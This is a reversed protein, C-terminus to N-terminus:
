EGAGSRSRGFSLVSLQEVAVGGTHQGLRAESSQSAYVPAKGRAEEYDMRQLRLLAGALVSQAEARRCVSQTAAPEETQAQTVFRPGHGAEGSADGDLSDWSRTRDFAPSHTGADCCLRRRRLSLERSDIGSDRPLHGAARPACFFLCDATARPLSLTCTILATPGICAAPRLLGMTCAADYGGKCLVCSRPVWQEPVPLSISIRAVRGGV